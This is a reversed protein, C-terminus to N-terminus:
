EALLEVIEDLVPKIYTILTMILTYYMINKNFKRNRKINIERM